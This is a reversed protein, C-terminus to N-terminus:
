SSAPWKLSIVTRSYRDCGYLERTKVDAVIRCIHTHRSLSWWTFTDGMQTPPKFEGIESVKRLIEPPCVLAISM